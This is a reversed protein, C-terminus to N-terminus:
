IAAGETVHLCGPPVWEADCCDDGIVGVGDIHEAGCDSCKFGDNMIPMPGLCKACVFWHDNDEIKKM